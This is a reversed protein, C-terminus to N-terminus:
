KIEKSNSSPIPSSLVLNAPYFCGGQPLTQVLIQTESQPAVVVSFITEPALNTSHNIFRTELIKQNILFTGRAIGGAPAFLLHLERPIPSENVAQITLDYVMGYNGRLTINTKPDYLFPADGIPIEYVPMDFNYRITQTDNSAPFVGCRYPTAPQNLLSNEPSEPDVVGAILQLAEPTQTEFEVLSTSVMRPRFPHASLLLRQRPALTIPTWNGSVIRQWYTKASRHGSHIEDPSPGGDAKILQLNVTADSNNQLFTHIEFPKKARNIHYYMFRVRKTTFPYSVLTGPEIIEEPYNSVLLTGAQLFLPSMFVCFLTGWFLRIM